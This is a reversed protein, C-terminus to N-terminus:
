LNRLCIIKGGGGRKRRERKERGIDTRAIQCRTLWQGEEDNMMGRGERLGVEVDVVGEM